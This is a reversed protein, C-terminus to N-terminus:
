ASAEGFGMPRGSPLPGLVQSATKLDRGLAEATEGMVADFCRSGEEDAWRLSASLHLEKLYAFTFGQTREVLAALGEGSLRLGVTSESDLRTLFARRTAADPLPFHFKRDFRSPRDLLSRDIKEPHNTTAIVFLGTNLAFGDLENLLHSRTRDDVLCDLDELVIVTPANHRARDFVKKIGGAASENRGEFGRVVLTPRDLENVLARVAHSKGNGPPGIFLVGRKWPLRHQEFFARRAFFRQADGRVEAALDGPLVLDDWRAQKVAQHLEVSKEFHGNSFVLVQGRVDECFRTVELFLRKAAGEDDAIIWWATEPCAGGAGVQAVVVEFRSGQWALEFWGFRGYRWVDVRSETRTWAVVCPAGPVPVLDCQRGQQFEFPDFSGHETYAVFRGPRASRISETLELTIANGQARLALFADRHVDPATM